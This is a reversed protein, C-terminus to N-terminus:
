ITLVPFYKIHRDLLRHNITVYSSLTPISKYVIFQAFFSHNRGHRRRFFERVRGDIVDVVFGGDRVVQLLENVRFQVGGARGSRCLHHRGRFRHRGMATHDPPAVIEVILGTAISAIAIYRHHSRGSIFTTAAGTEHRYRSRHHCGDWRRSNRSRVHVHIGIGVGCRRRRCHVM